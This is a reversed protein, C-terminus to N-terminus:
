LNYKRVNKYVELEEPHEIFSVGNYGIVVGMDDLMLGIEKALNVAQSDTALINADDDKEVEWVPYKWSTMCTNSSYISWGQSEILDGYVSNFWNIFIEIDKLPYYKKDNNKKSYESYTTIM